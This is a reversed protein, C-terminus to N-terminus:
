EHKAIRPSGWGKPWKCTTASANSLSQLCRNRPRPAPPLAPLRIRPPLDAAPGLGSAVGEGTVSDLSDRATADADPADDDGSSDVLAVQIGKGDPSGVTATVIHV